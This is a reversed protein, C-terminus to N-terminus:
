HRFQSLLTISHYESSGWELRIQYAAASDALDMNKCLNHMNKTEICRAMWFQVSLRVTLQSQIRGGTKRKVACLRIRLFGMGVYKWASDM